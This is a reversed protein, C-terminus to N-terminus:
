RSVGAFLGMYTTPLAAFVGRVESSPNGYITIQNITLCAASRAAYKQGYNMLHLMDAESDTYREFVHASKGDDAIFWEYNLTGPESHRIDDTMEIVLAKLTDLQGANINVEALVLVNDNM